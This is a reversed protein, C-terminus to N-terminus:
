SGSGRYAAIFEGSTMITTNFRRQLEDRRGDNIFGKADNTVFVRRRDRVHACFIMADRLQRRQGNSLHARAGPRPFAEHSIVELVTELCVADDGGAWVANGWTSEGYVGTEIIRALPKLKV